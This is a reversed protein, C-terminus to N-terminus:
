YCKILQEKHLTLKMIDPLKTISYNAINIFKGIKDINESLFYKVEENQKEICIYLNM